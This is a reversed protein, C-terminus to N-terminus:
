KPPSPLKNTFIIQVITGSGESSQIELFGNISSLYTKAHSLGLGNSRKGLHQKELFPTRSGVNSLTEPSMGIGDDIVYLVTRDSYMRAGIRIEGQSTIADYSNQIINALIRDIEKRDAVVFAAPDIEDQVLRIATNSKFIYQKENVIKCVLDSIFLKSTTGVPNIVPSFTQPIEKALHHRSELLDNGIDNIRIISNSILDKVDEPIHAINELGIKLAMLPSRIDHAVQASIKDILALRNIKEQFNQTIIGERTKSYNQEIKLVLLMFLWFLLLFSGAFIFFLGNSITPAVRFAITIDQNKLNVIIQHSFLFGDRIIKPQHYEVDTTLPVFLEGITLLTRNGQSRDIVEVGSILDSSKIVRQFKTVSTLLNGQQISILEADLWGKVAMLSSSQVYFDLSIGTAAFILLSGLFFVLIYTKLKTLHM